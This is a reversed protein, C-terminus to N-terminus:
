GQPSGAKGDTDNSRRTYIDLISELERELDALRHEINALKHEAAPLAAECQQRYEAWAERNVFYRTVPIKSEAPHHNPRESEKWTVDRQLRAPHDDELSRALNRLTDNPPDSHPTAVVARLVNLNTSAKAREIRLNAGHIRRQANYDQKLWNPVCKRMGLRAEQREHLDHKAESKERELDR